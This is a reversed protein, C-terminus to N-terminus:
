WHNVIDDEDSDDEFNENQTYKKDFRTMVPIWDVLTKTDGGGTELRSLTDAAEHIVRACHFTDLQFKLLRLRWRALKGMSETM